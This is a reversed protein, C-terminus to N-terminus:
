NKKKGSSILNFLPVQIRRASMLGLTSLHGRRGVEAM